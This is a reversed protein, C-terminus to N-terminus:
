ETWIWLLLFIFTQLHNSCWMKFCAWGINPKIARHTEYISYFLHSLGQDQSLCFNWAIKVWFGFACPYFWLFVVHSGIGGWIQYIFRVSSAICSQFSVYERRKQTVDVWSRAGVEFWTQAAQTCTVTLTSCSHPDPM